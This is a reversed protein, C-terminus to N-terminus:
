RKRRGTICNKLRKESRFKIRRVRKNRVRKKRKRGNDGQCSKATM